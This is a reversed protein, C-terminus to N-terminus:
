MGSWVPMSQDIEFSGRDYVKWEQVRLIGQNWVPVLEVHLALGSKMEIDRVFCDREADYARGAALIVQRKRLELDSMHMGWSVKKNRVAADTMGLVRQMLLDMEQVFREGEADARYYEQVSEASKQSFGDERKANGLSLVAFTALCLVIFILILSASGIGARRKIEYDAMM